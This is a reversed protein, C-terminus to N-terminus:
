PLPRGRGSLRPQFANRQARWVMGILVVSARLALSLLTLLPLKRRMQEPCGGLARNAERILVEAHPSSPPLISRIIREAGDLRGWSLDNQRWDRSLFAGFHFLATGALKRHKDDLLSVADCPSIRFVECLEAEGVSAEYFVPFTIQDYYEFQDFYRRSNEDLCAEVDAAARIFVERLSELSPKKLTAAIRTLERRIAPDSVKGLVFRLRRQRYGLDYQLLFRSESNERDQESYTRERWAHVHAPPSGLMAAL